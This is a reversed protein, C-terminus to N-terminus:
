RSQTRSSALHLSVDVRIASDTDVNLNTKRQAGFGAATVTLDYRGVALDPFSYLGQKDSLNQCTTHRSVNILSIQAGPVLAGSADTIAGSISGGTVAWAQPAVLCFISLLILAVHKGFAAIASISKAVLVHVEFQTAVLCLPELPHAIEGTEV